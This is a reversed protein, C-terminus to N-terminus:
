DQICTGLMQKITLTQIGFGSVCEELNYTEVIKDVFDLNRRHEFCDHVDAFWYGEFLLFIFKMKRYRQTKVFLIDQLHIFKYHM